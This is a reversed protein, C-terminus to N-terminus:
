VDELQTIKLVAGADSIDSSFKDILGDLVKSHEDRYFLFLGMMKRRDRIRESCTLGMREALPQLERMLDSVNRYREAPDRRASKMVANVLEDPIDPRENRPDPIDEKLHRDMLKSLDDEPFPRKGVLVEYMMIGLSYIDTREDVPNGEIQEPAM